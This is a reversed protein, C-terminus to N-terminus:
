VGSLKQSLRSIKRAREESKQAKEAYEPFVQQFPADIACAIKKAIILSATKRYAVNYVHATTVGCAEALISFNLGKIKLTQSIKSGNM